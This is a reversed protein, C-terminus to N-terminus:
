SKELQYIARLLYAALGVDGSTRANMAAERLRQELRQQDRKSLRNLSDLGSLLNAENQGLDTM